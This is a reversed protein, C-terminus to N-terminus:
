TRCIASFAIASVCLTEGGEKFLELEVAKCKQKQLIKDGFTSLNLTETNKAQLGLCNKLDKM